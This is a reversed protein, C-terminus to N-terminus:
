PAESGCKAGCVNCYRSEPPPDHGCLCREGRPPMKLWAAAAMLSSMTFLALPLLTQMAVLMALALAAMAVGMWYMVRLSMAM